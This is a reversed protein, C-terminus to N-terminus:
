EGLRAGLKQAALPLWDAIAGVATIASAAGCNKTGDGASWAIVGALVSAGNESTLAAGGSDLECAGAPAGGLPVLKAQATVYRLLVKLTVTRLVGGSRPSGEESLGFGALTFQAGVAPLGTAASLAIPRFQAPLPSRTRVLAVDPSPKKQQDHARTWAPHIAVGDIEVVSPGNAGRVLVAYSGPRDVCHGATLVLNRGVVTGSCAGNPSVVEILHAKLAPAAPAGGVIAGAPTAAAFVLAAIAFTM